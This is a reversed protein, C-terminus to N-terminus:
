ALAPERWRLTEDIEGSALLARIRRLRVYRDGEFDDSTLGVRRYAEVLEAAGRRADWDLSLEPFVTALRSFDVRYSRADASSGEAYEVECGTLESLLEALDRILYNQEDSGVNYAQGRITDEPAALM